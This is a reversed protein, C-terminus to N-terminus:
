LVPGLGLATSTTGDILARNIFYSHVEAFNFKLHAKINAYGSKIFPLSLM